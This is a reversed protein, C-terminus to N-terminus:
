SMAGQPVFEALVNRCYAQLLARRCASLDRTRPMYTTSLWNAEDTTRLLYQAASPTSWITPDSFSLRDSMAPMILDYYMLVERYIDDFTPGAKILAAYNDYPLIREYVCSEAFNLPDIGDAARQQPWYTSPVLRFLRLGPTGVAPQLWLNSWGSQFNLATPERLLQRPFRYFGPSEPDGTPTMRWQEITLALPGTVPRGRRWLMLPTRGQMSVPREPSVLAPLVEEWSTGPPPDELYNCQSDAELHHELEYMLLGRTAVINPLDSTLVLEAGPGELREADAASVHAYSIDLIGGGLEYAAKSNDLVGIVTVESVNTTPDQQAPTPNRMGLTVTGLQFKDGDPGDEPMTNSVDVSVFKAVPDVHAIAPALYYPKKDARYPNVFSQAPNLKRGMTVSRPEGVFWPAITGIVMGIAPNERHDGNAIMASLDADSIRPYALFLNYRVTLGMAGTPSGDGAGELVEALAAVTPSDDAAAFLHVAEDLEAARDAELKLDDADVVIASQFGASAGGAGGTTANGLCGHYSVNRYWNIGRTTAVSPQRSRFVGTAAFAPRDSRSSITLSDSFIQTTSFGEPNNDCLFAHELSVRCGILPDADPDTVVDGYGRTISTIRVDNFDLGMDGYLNYQGRMLGDPTLGAIWVRFQDPTMGQLLPQVRESNSTMIMGTGPSLSDNNGTGANASMSGFFTIRPLHFISV